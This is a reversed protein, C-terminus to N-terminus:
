FPFNFTKGRVMILYILVCYTLDVSIDEASVVCHFSSCSSAWCQPLCCAPHHLHISSILHWEPVDLFLETEPNANSSPTLIIMSPGWSIIMLIATVFNHICLKANMSVTTYIWSCHFQLQIYVPGTQGLDAETYLSKCCRYFLILNPAKM